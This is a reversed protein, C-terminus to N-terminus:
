TYHYFISSKSEDRNLGLSRNKEHSGTRLTVSGGYGPAEDHGRLRGTTGTADLGAGIM